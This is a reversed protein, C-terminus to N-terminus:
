WEEQKKLLKEFYLEPRTLKSIEESSYGLEKFNLV